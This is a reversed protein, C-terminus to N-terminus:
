TIAGQALARDMSVVNYFITGNNNTQTFNGTVQASNAVSMTLVNNIRDIATIIASAGVGTGSGYGGVFLADVNQVQIQFGGSVNVGGYASGAVAKVVTATAIQCSVANLVQKGGSNAGIQGAATIGVTTGAAVSATGNVPAVGSDMFWGFQNIVAGTTGVEAMAVYVPRGQGATNAVETFLQDFVRTTTNYTPTLVCLGYQRVSGGYKGFLFEGPGWVPDDAQAVLGPTIPPWPQGVPALAATPLLGEIPPYGIFRSDLKYTM